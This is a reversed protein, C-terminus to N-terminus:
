WERQRVLEALAAVCLLPAQLLSSRCCMKRRHQALLCFLPVALFGEFNQWVKLRRASGRQAHTGVCAWARATWSPGKGVWALAFYGNLKKM